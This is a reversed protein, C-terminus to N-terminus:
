EFISVFECEICTEYTQRRAALSRSYKRRIQSNFQNDATRVVQDHQEAEELAIM